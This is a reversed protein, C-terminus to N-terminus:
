SASPIHAVAIKYLYKKYNFLNPVTNNTPEKFTGEIYYIDGLNLNKEFFKKEKKTDFYYNIIIKEKANVNLILKNGDIEYKTITGTLNTSSIKYTSKYVMIKEM